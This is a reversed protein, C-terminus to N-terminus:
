LFTYKPALRSHHHCLICESYKPAVLLQYKYGYDWRSRWKKARWGWNTYDILHFSDKMAKVLSQRKILGQM